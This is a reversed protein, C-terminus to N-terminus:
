VFLVEFSPDGPPVPKVTATAVRDEPVCPTRITVTVKYPLEQPALRNRRCYARYAREVQGQDDTCYRLLWFVVEPCLYEHVPVVEGVTRWDADNDLWRVLAVKDVHVGETAVIYAQRGVRYAWTKARAAANQLLELAKGRTGKTQSQQVAMEAARSFLLALPDQIDYVSKSIQFYESERGM